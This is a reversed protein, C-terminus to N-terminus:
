EAAYPGGAEAIYLKREGYAIYIHMDSLVSMGVIIEPLRTAGFFRGLGSVMLDPLVTLTPERVEIEGLRMEGFTHRYVEENDEGLVGIQVADEGSFDLGFEREAVVRNLTSGSAGTDLLATLEVGDLVIPFTIHFGNDLEFPVVARPAQLLVRGECRNQLFIDLVNSGFDFNIDHDALIDPAITGVPHIESDGRESGPQIVFPRDYLHLDGFQFADVIVFEDSTEGAINMLSMGGSRSELGLADATARDLTGYVGGTDVLLYRERGNLAVPVLPRGGADFALQMESVKTLTCDEAGFAPATGFAFAFIAVGGLAHRATPM